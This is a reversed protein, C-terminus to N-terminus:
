CNNGMDLWGRGVCWRFGGPGPHQGRAGGVVPRDTKISPSVSGGSSNHPETISGRRDSTGTSTSTSTSTGTGSIFTRELVALIGGISIIVFLAILGWIMRDKGAKREKESGANLIFLALGWFFLLLAFAVLVPIATLALNTFIGILDALNGPAM